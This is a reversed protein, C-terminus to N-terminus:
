KPDSWRPHCSRFSDMLRGISVHTYRDTTAINAHGLMEQIIRLDAGNDLLHTAFSHRLTHPFINKLIGAQKAYGKIMKWVLIRDIPDGHKTLFLARQQDSDWQCRFSALYHDIAEIAKSGVPVIREKRGKGMVKVITDDVDYISLGCLESVRLGSSYLLEIIAKDRAGLATSVDPQAILREIEDMSLIDPILQWLKPSDIHAGVDKSHLKERKLFRAFLKCSILMRSLTASAYQARKLRDLFDIIHEQTLQNSQHISKGEKLYKLFAELDRGYAEISNKALGKELAVFQMFQEKAYDLSEESPM